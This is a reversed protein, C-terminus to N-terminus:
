YQFEYSLGVSSGGSGGSVGTELKLGRYLDIRATAQTSGTATGQKAGVYVGPAVYRGAELTPSSGNSGGGVSLQDLGLGKRIGALPDGLASPGGTFSAIAAAIQALQFPSLSGASQNFLLRSLVEDQPLSPTSSLTLTPKSATGGITLTATISSNTSTAVFDLSPDLSRGGTFGVTGKTFDLTKGALSFRGRILHFGGTPFPAAATGGVVIRGGMEADLGRGRVFVQRPADLTLKLGINPGPAAPKPPPAGAKRITLVAVQPPMSKPINIDTRLLHVTGALTMARAMQGRLTMNADLLASMLDSAIPRADHATITLDIPLGPALMGVTGTAGITGPGAHGTLSVLRLTQGEARILGNLGSIHVGQRVDQVDGQTLRVTGTIRPAAANGAIATDLVLRGAVRRGSAALLPNLLALDIAGRAQLALAGTANLPAQGSLRMQTGAGATIRTDIRATAGALTADATVAAPPLASGPGQRLHLGTAAVHVAGMPRAATGTLRATANVVGDAALAPSALAALAAPLNQLAVRLDLRPSAEGAVDLVASGLGMRLRDVSLGAGFRLRAPALLRLRQGHWDAQLMSLALQRGPADLTAAASLDAPKGALPGSATMRVALANAPGTAQIRAQGSLTGAQVGALDLAASVVPHAADGIRATLQGRSVIATGPLGANTATMTIAVQPVGKQVTAKLTAAVAGTIPRGLLPQLDALRAMRLSIKGTPLRAGPPLSLAGSVKASKWDAKDVTVHLGSASRSAVLAVDLPAGALTGTATLRGSPAAPLGTAHLRAHIPGAPMGPAALTGALNAALALDSPPGTVDAHLVLAGSLTPALVKVQPLTLRAHLALAQGAMGGHAALQLAAGDLAFRSITLDGNKRTLAFSIRGDPGILAPAMGGTLGLTGTGSIALAARRMTGALALTGHGNLAIGGLAAFPALHPLTLDLTAKRVGGATTAATQAVGHATLLAHTLRFRVPRGPQDLREDARLVLPTAALLDPSPGPIHLGSLTATLRVRGNTGHAEAVIGDVHAGSAALGDIRMQATVDPTTFPGSEDASLAIKRWSLGAAPAMAPASATVHLTSSGGSLNIRGQANARLPGAAVRLRTALASFPGNVAVTADLVGIAPLGALHAVLGESAEHVSVQGHIGAADMRAVLDYRGAGGIQRVALTAAAQSGRLRANGDISVTAAVGAVPAGLVLQGVHLVRVNVSVPLHPLGFGGGTKTPAAPATPAPLRPLAIRAASLRSVLLEGELLHLPSWDFTLDNVTLWGGQTDRLAIRQVRLADPFRGALGTLRVNGGTARAVVSEILRRGPGTNAGVMVVVVLVVAVGLVAALTLGIWRLTRKM